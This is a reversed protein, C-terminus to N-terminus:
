RDRKKPLLLNDERSDSHIVLRTWFDPLECDVEVQFPINHGWVLLLRVARFARNPRSFIVDNGRPRPKVRITRVCINVPAQELNLQRQVQYMGKLVIRCYRCILAQESVLKIESSM